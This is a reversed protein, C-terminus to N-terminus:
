FKRYKNIIFSSNIILPGCFKLGSPKMKKRDLMEPLFLVLLICLKESFLFSYKGVWKILVLTFCIGFGSFSIILSPFNCLDINSLVLHLIKWFILLDFVLLIYFSLICTTTATWYSLQIQSETVEYVAARWAGRDKLTEQLKSLNMDMSHSWRSLHMFFM